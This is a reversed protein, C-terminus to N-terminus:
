PSTTRPKRKFAQKSLSPFPHTKVKPVDIGRSEMSSKIQEFNEKTIPLYILRDKHKVAIRNGDEFIEPPIQMNPKGNVYSINVSPQNVLKGNSAEGALHLNVTKTILKDNDNKLELPFDIIRPESLRKTQKLKKANYPLSVESIRVSENKPSNNEWQAPPHKKAITQTIQQSYEHYTELPKDSSKCKTNSKTILNSFVGSSPKQNNPTKEPNITQNFIFDNEQQSINSIQNRYLEAIIGPIEPTINGHESEKTAAVDDFLDIFKPYNTLNLVKKAPNLHNLKALKSKQNQLYFLNPSGGMNLAHIGRSTGAQAALNEAHGSKTILESVIKIKPNLNDSNLQKQLFNLWNFIAQGGTRDKGSKCGTAFIIKEGNMQRRAIEYAIEAHKSRNNKGSIFALSNIGGIFIDESFFPDGAAQLQEFAKKLPARIMGQEKIVSNLSTIKVADAIKEKTIFEKLSLLNEKTLEVREKDSIHRSLYAATGARIEKYSLNQQQGNNDTYQFTRTDIYGNRVGPLFSLQTPVTQGELIASVAYKQTLNQKIPSLKKFWEPYNNQDGTKIAQYQNQLKPSLHQKTPKSEWILKAEESEPMIVTKVTLPTEEFNAFDKASGLEKILTKQNLKKGKINLSIPEIVCREFERCINTNNKQDKGIYQALDIFNNIIYNKLDHSNPQYEDLLLFAGRMVALMSEMWPFPTDAAEINKYESEKFTRIRVSQQNTGDEEISIGRSSDSLSSLHDMQKTIFSRLSKPDSNHLEQQIKSKFDRLFKQQEM